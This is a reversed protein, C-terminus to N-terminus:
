RTSTIYIAPQHNCRKNINHLEGVESFSSSVNGFNPCDNVLLAFFKKALIELFQRHSYHINELLVSYESLASFRIYDHSLTYMNITYLKFATIVSISPLLQSQRPTHQKHTRFICFLFM